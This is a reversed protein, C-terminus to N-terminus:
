PWCALAMLAVQSAEDSDNQAPAERKQSGLTSTSRLLSMTCFQFLSTVVPGLPREDISSLHVPLKKLTAMIANTATRVLQRLAYSGIFSPSGLEAERKGCTNPFPFQSATWIAPRPRMETTAIHRAIQSPAAAATRRKASM